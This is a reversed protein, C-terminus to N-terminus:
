ELVYQKGTLFILIGGEPLETHIKCAKTFAEAVYDAATEKNFHVTVPFQRSEVKIVPPATEFLRPNETFDELRLTASM